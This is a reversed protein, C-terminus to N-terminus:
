TCSVAPRSAGDPSRRDIPVGLEEKTQPCARTPRHAAPECRAGISGNTAAVRETEPPVGVPSPAIRARPGVCTPRDKRCSVEMHTDDNAANLFGSPLRARRLEAVMRSRRRRFFAAAVWALSPQCRGARVRM